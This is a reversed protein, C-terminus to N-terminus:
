SGRTLFRALVASSKTSFNMLFAGEGISVLVGFFYDELPQAKFAKKALLQCLRKYDSKDLISNSSRSHNVELTMYGFLVIKKRLGM